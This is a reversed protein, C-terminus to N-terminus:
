AKLFICIFLMQFGRRTLIDTKNVLLKEWCGSKHDTGFFLQRASQRCLCSDELHQYQAKSTFAEFCEVYINYTKPVCFEVVLVTHIMRTFSTFWENQGHSLCYFFFNLWNSTRCEWHCSFHFTIVQRLAIYLRVDFDYNLCVLITETFGPKTCMKFNQM